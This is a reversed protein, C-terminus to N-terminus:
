ANGATVKRRILALAQELDAAASQMRASGTAPIVLMDIGLDHCGGTRFADRLQRKLRNRQIANGYKRSVAMGLRSHDLHNIRYTIRLNGV